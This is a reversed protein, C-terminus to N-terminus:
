DKQRGFLVVSFYISEKFEGIHLTATYKDEKPFKIFQVNIILRGRGDKGINLKAPTSSTDFIKNGSSDTVDVYYNYSFEKEINETELAFVFSMSPHTVPFDRATISDFIEIINLNNTASLFAKECVAKITTKM